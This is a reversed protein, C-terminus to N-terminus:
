PLISRVFKAFERVLKVIADANPGLSIAVLCLAFFLAVLCLAFMTDSLM